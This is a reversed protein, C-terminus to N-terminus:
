HIVIPVSPSPSPAPPAPPPASSHSTINQVTHVITNVVFTGIIAGALTTLTGAAAATTATVTTAATVDGVSSTIGFSTANSPAGFESFPQFATQSVASVTGTIVGAAASITLSQGAALTFVQGNTLTVQVPLSPNSLQYVNIQINSTAPDVSVDGETGRVAIQATPTSFTYNARAGSPHEVKFRVKGSRIYFKASAVAAQSFTDVRVNSNSGLIVRSSDPLIIGGMSNNGTLAWDQDNLTISAHLGLPRTTGNSSYAVSGKLSQLQKDAAAISPASPILLTMFTACLFSALFRRM